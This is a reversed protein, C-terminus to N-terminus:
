RALPKKREGRLRGMPRREGRRSLSALRKFSRVVDASIVLQVVRRDRDSRAQLVVGQAKLRALRRQVTAAPGIDALFLQKLTIPMGMEQCYGIEIVLDLDM